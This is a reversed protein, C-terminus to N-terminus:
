FLGGYNQLSKKLYFNLDTTSIHLQMRIGDQETFDAYGFPIKESQVAPFLEQASLVDYENIITHLVM